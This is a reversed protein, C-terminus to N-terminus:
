RTLVRVIVDVHVNQNGRRALQEDDEAIWDTDNMKSIERLVKKLEFLFKKSIIKHIYFSNFYQDEFLFTDDSDLNKLRGLLENFSFIKHNQSTASM